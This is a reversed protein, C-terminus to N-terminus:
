PKDGGNSGLYGRRLLGGCDCARVIGIGVQRYQRGSGSSLHGWYAGAARFNGWLRGIFRGMGPIGVQDVREMPEVNNLTLLM